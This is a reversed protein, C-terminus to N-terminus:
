LQFREPLPRSDSCIPGHNFSSRLLVTRRVDYRGVVPLAIRRGRRRWRNAEEQQSSWVRFHVSSSILRVCMPLYRPSNNGCQPCNEPPDGIPLVPSSPQNPKLFSSIWDLFSDRNPNGLSNNNFSDDDFSPVSSPVPTVPSLQDDAEVIISDNNVIETQPPLLALM